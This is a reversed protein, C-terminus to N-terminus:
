PEATEETWNRCLAEAQRTAENLAQRVREQLEAVTPVPGDQPKAEIPEGIHIVARSFPLPVVHEDWRSRLKFGKAAAAAPIIVANTQQSIVAIGPKVAYAPGTPGDPSILACAGQRVLKILSVTARGWETAGMESGVKIVDMHAREGFYAMVRGNPSDPVIISARFYNRLRAYYSLVTLFNHGHWGAFVIPRGQRISEHIHEEGSIRWDVIRGALKTAWLLLQGRVVTKWHQM